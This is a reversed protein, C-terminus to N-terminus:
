VVLDLVVPKWISIQSYQFNIVPLETFLETILETIYKFFKFLIFNIYLLWVFMVNVDDLDFNVRVQNMHFNYLVGCLAIRYNESSIEWITEIGQRPGHLMSLQCYWVFISVIMFCFSINVHDVHFYMYKGKSDAVRYIQIVQVNLIHARVTGTRYTCRNFDHSRPDQM